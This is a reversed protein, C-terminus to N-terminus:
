QESASNRLSGVRRADDAFAFLITAHFPLVLAADWPKRDALWERAVDHFEHKSLVLGLWVNSDALKLM